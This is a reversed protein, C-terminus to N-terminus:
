ENTPVVFGTGGVTCIGSPYRGAIFAASRRLTLRAEMTGSLPEESVTMVPDSEWLLMDLPRLALQNDQNAAEGQTASISESTFVPLGLLAGIPDPVGDPTTPAPNHADPVGLPRKQEDESTTWWAWRGGRMLWAEPRIKRNDSVAGFAQGLFPYAGMATPSGSNYTVSEIGEVNNIGTFSELTGTGSLIMRELQFDYDNLMDAWLRLDLNAGRLPLGQIMQLPIDSLGQIPVVPSGTWEDTFDHLDGAAKPRTAATQTGTIFRPLRISSVGRDLPFPGQILDAIVREPRVALVGQDILWLPPSFASIADPPTARREFVADTPIADGRSRREASAERARMEVRIEKTHRELRAQAEGNGDRALSHDLIWSHSSQPAYVLPERVILASRSRRQSRELLDAARAEWQDGEALLAAIRTRTESTPKGGAASLLNAAQSTVRDREEIAHDRLARETVAKARRDLRDTRELHDDGM